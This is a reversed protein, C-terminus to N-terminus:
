VALALASTSTVVSQQVPCPNENSASEDLQGFVRRLAAMAADFQDPGASRTECQSAYSVMFEHGAEPPLQVRFQGDSCRRREWQNAIVRGRAGAADCDYYEAIEDFTLWVQPM